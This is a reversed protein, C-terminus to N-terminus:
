RRPEISEMHFESCLFIAQAEDIHGCIYIPTGLCLAALVVELDTAVEHRDFDDPCKRDQLFRCRQCIHVQTYQGLGFCFEYAFDTIFDESSFESIVEWQDDPLSSGTSLGVHIEILHNSVATMHDLSAFQIISFFVQM